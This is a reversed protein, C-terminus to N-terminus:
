NTTTKAPAAMAPKKSPLKWFDPRATVWEDPPNSMRPNIALTLVEQNLIGERQFTEQMKRGEDGFADRYAQTHPDTDREKLTSSGSFMVFTGTPMGSDVSYIAWHEDVNAKEHAAKLAKRMDRFSRVHGPRVRTIIVDVYTMDRMSGRARYSLDEELSLLLNRQGTRFPADLDDAQELLKSLAANKEVMQNEAEYAAFSEYASVFWSEPTGTLTDFGVYYVPVSSTRFARVYAEEARAHAAKRAPKIEERIVQLVKRAGPEQAAAPATIGGSVVLAGVLSVVLKM